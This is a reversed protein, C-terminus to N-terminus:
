LKERDVKVGAMNSLETAMFISIFESAVEAYVDIAGFEGRIIPLSLVFKKLAEM